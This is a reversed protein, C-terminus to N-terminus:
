KVLGRSGTLHLRQECAQIALRLGRSGMIAPPRWFPCQCPEARDSPQDTTGGILTKVSRRGSRAVHRQVGGVDNSIDGRESPDDSGYAHGFSLFRKAGFQIEASEKVDGSVISAHSPQPLRLVACRVEDPLVRIGSGPM